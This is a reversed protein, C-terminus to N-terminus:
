QYSGMFIFLPATVVAQNSVIDRPFKIVTDDSGSTKVVVVFLICYVTTVTTQKLLGTASIGRHVLGIGWLAGNQLLLTCMYASKQLLNHM